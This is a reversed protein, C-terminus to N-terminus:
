LIHSFTLEITKKTEEWLKELQNKLHSEITLRESIASNILNIAKEKLLPDRADINFRGLGILEMLERHKHHNELAITPVGFSLPLIQGHGRMALVCKAHQYYGFIKEVKDFAFESFPWVSINDIGQMVDLSLAIDDFVHPALVIHYKFSMDKVFSRMRELFLQYNEKSGFRYLPKDNALQIIIYDESIGSPRFFNEKRGVWFGPDAIVKADIQTQNKLREYSGDNRVSFLLALRATERL